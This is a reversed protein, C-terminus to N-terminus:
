RFTLIGGPRVLFSHTVTFTVSAPVVMFPSSM